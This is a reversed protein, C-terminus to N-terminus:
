FIDYFRRPVGAIHWGAVRDVDLFIFLIGRLNPDGTGAAFRHHYVFYIFSLHFFCWCCEDTTRRRHTYYGNRDDLYWRPARWALTNWREIGAYLCCSVRSLMRVSFFIIFKSLVYYIHKHWSFSIGFSTRVLTYIHIHATRQSYMSFFKFFIQTNSVYLYVPTFRRMVSHEASITITNYSLFHHVLVSPIM